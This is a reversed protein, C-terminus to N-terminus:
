YSLLKESFIFLEHKADEISSDINVNKGDRLSLLDKHLESINIALVNYFENRNENGFYYSIFLPNLLNRSNWDEVANMYNEWSRNLVQESEHNRLNQSYQEALYIRKQGSVTFEKIFENRKEILNQQSANQQNIKVLQYNIYYGGIILTLGLLILNFIFSYINDKTPLFKSKM